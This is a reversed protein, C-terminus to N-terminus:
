HLTHREPLVPTDATTISTLDDAQPAMGQNKNIRILVTEPEDICECVQVIVVTLVDCVVGKFLCSVRVNDGVSPREFVNFNLFMETIVGMGIRGFTGPGYNTDYIKMSNKTAHPILSTYHISSNLKCKM